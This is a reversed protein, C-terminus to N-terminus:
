GDMTGTSGHHSRHISSSAYGGGIGITCAKQELCNMVIMMLMMKSACGGGGGCGWGPWSWSGVM